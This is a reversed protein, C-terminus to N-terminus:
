IARSEHFETTGSMISAKLGSVPHQVFTAFPRWGIMARSPAARPAEPRCFGHHPNLPPNRGPGAGSRIQGGFLVRCELVIAPRPNRGPHRLHIRSVGDRGWQWQWRRFASVM